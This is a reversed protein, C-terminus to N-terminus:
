SPRGASRRLVPEARGANSRSRRARAQEAEVRGVAVYRATSGAAMWARTTAGSPGLPRRASRGLGRAQAWANPLREWAQRREGVRGAAREGLQVARVRDLGVDGADDGVGLLLQEGGLRLGAAVGCDHGGRRWRSM